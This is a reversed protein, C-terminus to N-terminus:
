ALEFGETSDVITGANVGDAAKIFNESTRMDFCVIPLSYERCFSIATLDTAKLNRAIVEDYSIRAYRKAEPDKNPDATYIGDM